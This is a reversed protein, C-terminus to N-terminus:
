DAKIRVRYMTEGPTCPQEKPTSDSGCVMRLTMTSRTVRISAFGNHELQFRSGPAVDNFSEVEEGGAGATVHRVGHRPAFVENVHMHGNLALVYKSFREGLANMARRYGPSSGNSSYAARHGASVVFSLDPDSQADAMLKRAAARWERVAGPFPEPTIIFRVHGADFWYWDEGQCPNVGDVLPCGPASARTATNISLAQPKPLRFRGKYNAFNDPVACPLSWSTASGYEHNGWAPMYAANRSWAMVDNFHQDVARQCHYNAYTLDGLMLVFAPDRAAILQQQRAVSPSSVSDGVDGVAVFRFTGTPATTFTADPGGGISYHYTTGPRLHRLRVQRFPGASSWPRPRSAHATAARGYDRTRGFAITDAAGRWNFAVSRGGVFTYHVEDAWGGATAGSPEMAPRAAAGPAALVTFLSLCALGIGTRVATGLM